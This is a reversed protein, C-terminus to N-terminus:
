DAQVCSEYVVVHAEACRRWSFAEARARGRAAMATAADPHEILARIADAIAEDDAPDVLRAADGVVEPLSAVNSTIVPTGCAMCELPPLGFGEYFTPWVFLAAAAYLLPLTDDRVYGIPRLTEAVGLEEARRWLGEVGWGSAGALVLPYEGRLSPPLMAYARLLGDVNKRPELTGVFLLFRAPLSFRARFAAIDEASQPGFGERPALPIVTVRDAPCEALELLERKTFESPCIVRRSRGLSPEFCRRYWEVRDDPHWDPHRIVSLDHITTVSVGRWRMAINNPEHYLDCRRRGTAARFAAHYGAQLVRRVWWPPRGIPADPAGSAPRADPPPAKWGLVDTFFGIFRHQPAVQPLWYLLQEVYHGVGTRPPRLPRDNIAVTLPRTSM